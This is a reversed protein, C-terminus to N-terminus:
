EDIVLSSVEESARVQEAQEHGEKDACGSILHWADM